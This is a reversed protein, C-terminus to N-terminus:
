GGTRPSRRRRHRCRYRASNLIRWGTRNNADIRAWKCSRAKGERAKRLLYQTPFRSGASADRYDDYETEEPLQGSSAKCPQTATRLLGTQTDSHLRDIPLVTPSSGVSAARTLHGSVKEM